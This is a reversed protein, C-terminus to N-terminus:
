KSVKCPFALGTLKINAEIPDGHTGSLIQCAHSGAMVSRGLKRIVPRKVTIRPRRVMIQDALKTCRLFPPLMRIRSDAIRSNNPPPKKGGKNATPPPTAPVWILLDSTPFDMPLMKRKAAFSHGQGSTIKMTQTNPCYRTPYKKLSKKLLIMPSLRSKITTM